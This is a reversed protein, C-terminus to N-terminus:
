KWWFIMTKKESVKLGIKAGKEDINTFNGIVVDIFRGVLDLDDARRLM